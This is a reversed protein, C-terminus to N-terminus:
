GRGPRPGISPTRPDSVIDQEMDEREASTKAYSRAMRGIAAGFARVVRELRDRATEVEPRSRNDSVTESPEGLVATTMGGDRMM